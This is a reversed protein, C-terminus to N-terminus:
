VRRRRLGSLVFTIVVDTLTGPVVQNEKASMDIRWLSAGPLGEFAGRENATTTSVSAIDQRQCGGHVRHHRAGINPDQGALPAGATGLRDDGAPLDTSNLPSTGPQAKFRIMGAGLHTLEVSVRTPDM